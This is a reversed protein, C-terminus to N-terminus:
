LHQFRAIFVMQYARPMFQPNHSDQQKVQGQEHMLITGVVQFHGHFFYFYFLFLIMMVYEKIVLQFVWRLDMLCRFAMFALALM